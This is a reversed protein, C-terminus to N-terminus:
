QLYRPRVRALLAMASRQNRGTRVASGPFPRTGPRDRAVQQDLAADTRQARLSENEERLELAEVPGDRQEFFGQALRRRTRREFRGDVAPKRPCRAEFLAEDSGELVRPRCELEGVVEVVVREPDARERHEREEAAGDAVGVSRPM